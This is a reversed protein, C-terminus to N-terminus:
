NKDAISRIKDETKKIEEELWSMQKDSVDHTTEDYLDSLKRILKDLIGTAKVQPIEKKSLSNFRPLRIKPM